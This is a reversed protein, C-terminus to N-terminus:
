VTFIEKCHINFTEIKINLCLKWIVEYKYLNKNYYSALLTFVYKIMPMQIHCKVCMCVCVCWWCMCVYLCVFVYACLCLYVCVHMCEHMCVNNVISFHSDIAKNFLM